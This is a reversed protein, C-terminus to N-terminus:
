RPMSDPPRAYDSYGGLIPPRYGIVAMAAPSSYFEHFCQSLAVHLDIRLQAMDSGSSGYLGYLLQERQQQSLEEFGREHMERSQKSIWSLLRGYRKSGVADRRIRDVIREPVGADVAGADQDAPIFTDVM